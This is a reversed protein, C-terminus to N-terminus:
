NRHAHGTGSRNKDLLHTYLRELQLTTGEWSYKQEVLRRGNESLKRALDPGTLISRIAAVYEHVDNAYLLDEGPRGEIGTVLSSAVVPIGCAMAEVVKRHMGTGGTRLPCIAVDSARLHATLDDVYGTVEICRGGDAARRLELPPNAGVIRLRVGPIAKQLEPFIEQILFRAADQNPYYSFNGTFIVSPPKGPPPPSFEPLDAGAPIMSVNEAGLHDRDVASLVLVQDFERCAMQEFRRMRGAEAQFFWRALGTEAESRRQMNLSLADLMELVRVPGNLPMTFLAGRSLVTHVVDFADRALLRKLKTRYEDSEYYLVQLPLGRYCQATARLYSRWAPLIVTQVEACYDSLKPLYELEKQHGIFSLL